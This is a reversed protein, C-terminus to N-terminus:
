SNIKNYLKIAKVTYKERYEEKFVKLAEIMGEYDEDFIAKFIPCLTYWDQSLCFFEGNSVFSSQYGIENFLTLLSHTTLKGKNKFIKKIYELDRAKEEFARATTECKIVEEESGESVFELYAEDWWASSGGTEMDLVSYGGNINGDGYKEGYSYEIVGLKGVCPDNKEGRFGCRFRVINGRKFM